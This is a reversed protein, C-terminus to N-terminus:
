DEIFTTFEEVSARETVFKNVPASEDAYGISMGCIVVHDDPIGLHRRIIRHYDSFAAQPCTHLGHGRASIM